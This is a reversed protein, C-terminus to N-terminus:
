EHDEGTEADSLQDELRSFVLGSPIKPYFDTSKQPMREGQEAVKLVESVETANMLFGVQTGQEEVQKFVEEAHRHYDLYKGEKREEPTINLEGELILTSLVNVDLQKWTDSKGEPFLTEPLEAASIRALYLTERGSLVVGFAIQDMGEFRLDELFEQKQHRNKAPDDFSLPYETLDFTERLGELLQEADFEPLHSVTRHSPYIFLGPDTSSVFVGMRREAATAIPDGQERMERLYNLATEYRHHGDAIVVTRERIGKKLQQIDEESELRWVRHVQSNEIEAEELPPAQKAEQLLERVGSEEEDDFLFFIPELNTRTARLLRLRDAKPGSMTEEHAHVDGEGYSELDGMAYFGTRTRTRGRDDEFEAEYVYIGPNEDKRFIRNRIWKELYAAARSYPDEPGEEPEKDDSNLILRVFNYPSAEYYASQMKDSIKDYPQTILRDLDVNKEGSSLEPHDDNYRYGEFPHIETM